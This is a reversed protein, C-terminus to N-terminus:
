TMSQGTKPTAKKGEGLDDGHPAQRGPALSSYGWKRNQTPPKKQNRRVGGKLGWTKDHFGVKIKQKKKKEKKHQHPERKAKQTKRKEKVGTGSNGRLLERTVGGGRDWKQPHPRTGGFFQAADKLNKIIPKGGVTKWFQFV